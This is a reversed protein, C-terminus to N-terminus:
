DADKIESVAAGNADVLEVSDVEVLNAAVVEDLLTRAPTFCRAAKRGEVIDGPGFREQLLAACAEIAPSM